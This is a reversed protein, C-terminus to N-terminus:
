DFRAEDVLRIELDISCADFPEAFHYHSPDRWRNGVGDIVRGANAWTM